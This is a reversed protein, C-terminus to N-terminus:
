CKGFNYAINKFILNSEISEFMSRCRQNKKEECTVHIKKEREDKM